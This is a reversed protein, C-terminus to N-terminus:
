SVQRIGNAELTIQRKKYLKGLGAKFNKKSMKLRALIAEPSSKDNLPLFGGAAELEALIQESVEGYRQKKPPSLILDVKDDSIVKKVWAQTTLGRKLPEFIENEYLLGWHRHNIIVAYGLDTRTLVHIAVEEGVEYNAPTKGIHRKLRQSAVARDARRDKHIFVTCFNGVSLQEKQEIKPLLLDKGIGWDLFAGLHNVAVVELYAIEGLMAKPKRTTAKLHERADSYVFVDVKDGVCLGNPAEKKLLFVSTPDQENEKLVLEASEIKVVQLLNKKGVEIVMISEKGGQHVPLAPVVVM